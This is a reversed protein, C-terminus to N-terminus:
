FPLGDKYPAYVKVKKNVGQETYTIEIIEKNDVVSDQPALEYQMNDIVITNQVQKQIDLSETINRGVFSKKFRDQLDDSEKIFTCAEDAWHLILSQPCKSFLASVRNSDEGNSFGMHNVIMAREIKTLTVGYENILMVSKAGHGIPEQENWTYYPVQVWNGEDNKVNRTGVDYCNVKCIDHLLAAIIISKEPLDFFTIFNKFDNMTYYVDLSHQLLGGRFSNHYKTSAPAFKFDSKDLWEVLNNINPRNTSKLLDKYIEWSEFIQKDEM